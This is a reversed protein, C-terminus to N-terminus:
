KCSRSLSTSSSVTKCFWFFRQDHRWGDVMRTGARALLVCPNSLRLISAHFCAIASHYYPSIAETVLFQPPGTLGGNARRRCQPEVNPHPLGYVWVGAKGVSAVSYIWTSCALRISSRKIRCTASYAFSFLVNLHVAVVLPSENQWFSYSNTVKDLHALGTTRRIHLRSRIIRLTLTCRFEDVCQSILWRSGLAGVHGSSGRSSEGREQLAEQNNLTSIIEQVVCSLYLRQQEPIKFSIQLFRCYCLPHIGPESYQGFALALNAWIYIDSHRVDSAGKGTARKTEAWPGETFEDLLRIMLLGDDRHTRFRTRLCPLYIWPSVGGM